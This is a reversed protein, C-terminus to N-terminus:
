STESTIGRSQVSHDSFNSPGMKLLLRELNMASQNFWDMDPLAYPRFVELCAEQQNYLLTRHLGLNGAKPNDILNASDNANMQFLVRNGFEKLAKRGIFYNVNTYTDCTAIVHVGTSSGECILQNLQKAPNAETNELDGSFSFDEDYRLQSYKQLNHLFLYTSPSASSQETQSREKQDAMIENLIKSLDNIRRAVTMQHHIPGVVRDLLGRASSGPQTGDLFIFKATGMPHQAALSILAISLISFIADERQGVILLNNENQRQFVVETPGKISNPAGLWIRPVPVPTIMEAQLLRTLLTNERVDAPADGEFVIPTSFSDHSKKVRERIKTLYEDRVEDPLWVVQFPSNGELSGATDNYIGEGPRSLLRPAPNSDDMILYADAENCQLAVRIVMQGMTARAITYAGGLTQSGLIVHIGFARGQRVIRDLLISAGQSIEDDEVFFEQFEDIILLTRPVPEQGGAKKYGAIDQVSLKRFWEGRRKLEDDVRRLVSLGFERDSEIAIVRAHPLHQNAYCKFEVGKKFDVLYFEVHRPSCWLSLNTIIVHLLTSKGSGTKGAVLVHQRTGRGINLHQFKTAGSRGIPVRLEDTTDLSWFDSDGPAITSFPVEIRNSDRNIKGVKQVFETIFESSPPPDLILNTGRFVKDALVFPGGRCRICVSNRRLETTIMGQPLPHRDDWHILTYVGCRAGSTAISLLQKMAADTFNVPFDAVVLFHYKEAINGAKENYEAITKYENRLYMQIVKEMHDNLKSLKQEIQAPQTWIRSNILHDAWDALHMVGAFNEGLGVPDIITFSLKGPPSVSLLRLVINNLAEIAEKKGAGNTEFLISGEEPYSLMLPPAVRSPGPFVLRKDSQNEACLQDANIELRAFKAAAKFEPPSTWTKWQQSDWDPFLTEAGVRANEFVLHVSESKTKWEVELAKWQTQHDSDLESEKHDRLEIFKAKQEEFEGRLQDTGKPHNLRLLHLRKRHFEKARVLIRAAKGELRKHRNHRIMSIKSLAEEKERKLTQVLETFEYEMQKHIQSHHLQSKGICVDYIRRATRVADTIEVVVPKISRYALFHIMWGIALLSTISIAARIYSFEKIGFHLLLTAIPIQCFLLLIWLIRYRFFRLLLSREVHSFKERTKQLLECLESFLQHEDSNTNFQIEGPFVFLRRLKRFGNFLSSATKEMSLFAELQPALNKKFFEFDAEVAALKVAQSNKAESIVTQFYQKRESEHDDMAHVGKLRSDRLAPSIKKERQLFKLQAKQEAAHLESDVGSTLNSLQETIQAMSKEHARRVVAISSQHERDLRTQKEACAQISGQLSELLGIM